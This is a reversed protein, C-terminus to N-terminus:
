AWPGSVFSCAWDTPAFNVVSNFLVRNFLVSITIADAKEGSLFAGSIKSWSCIDARGSCATSVSKAAGRPPLM